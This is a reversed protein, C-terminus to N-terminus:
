IYGCQFFENPQLSQSFSSLDAKRGVTAEPGLITRPVYYIGLLCQNFDHIFIPLTTSFFSDWVM